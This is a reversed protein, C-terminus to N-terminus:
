MWELIWEGSEASFEQALRQEILDAAAVVDQHCGQDEVVKRYRRIVCLRYCSGALQAWEWGRRVEIMRRDQQHKGRCLEALACHALALNGAINADRGGVVQENLVKITMELLRRAAAGEQDKGWLLGLAILVHPTRFQLDSESLMDALSVWYDVYDARGPPDAKTADWLIRGAAVVTSDIELAQTEKGLKTRVTSLAEACDELLSPSATLPAAMRRQDRTERLLRISHTDTAELVRWLLGVERTKFGNPAAEIRSRTPSSLSIRSATARPM